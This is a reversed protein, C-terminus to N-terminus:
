FLLTLVLLLLGGRKKRRKELFILLLLQFLPPLLLELFWFKLFLKQFESLLLTVSLTEVSFFEALVRNRILGLFRSAAITVMIILAASLITTQRETFVKSGRQLLNKIM